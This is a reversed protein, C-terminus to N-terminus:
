GIYHVVERIDSIVLEYKIEPIGLRKYPDILLCKMGVKQTGIVDDYYNDGVYLSTKPDAGAANLAKEFISPDPKEIGVESSIIIPDLFQELHNDSLVTRCSYDWNSILGIQIDLSKLQKLTEVVGDILQWRIETQQRVERYLKACLQLDLQVGLHYNLVGLYWPMFNVPKTGLVHPYERMFTKDTLYFCRRIDEETKEVQFKQLVEKYLQEVPVQVLTLGLDFWVNRVKM